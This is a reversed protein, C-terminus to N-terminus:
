SIEYDTFTLLGDIRVAWDPFEDIDEDASMAYFEASKDVPIVYKHGSEDSVTRYRM